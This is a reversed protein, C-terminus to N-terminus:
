IKMAELKRAIVKSIYILGKDTMHIGDKRFTSLTTDYLYCQYDAEQMVKLYKIANNGGGDILNDVTATTKKYKQEVLKVTLLNDSDKSIVEYKDYTGNLGIRIHRMFPGGFKGLDNSNYNTLFNADSVEIQVIGQLQPQVFPKLLKVNGMDWGYISAERIDLFNSPYELSLKKTLELFKNYNGGGKMEGSGGNGDYSSGFSGYNGNPPCMIIFKPTNLFNVMTRIDDIVIDTDTYNNRGVWIVQTREKNVGKLFEERIYPSTKGGYGKAYCKRGTIKQLYQAYNQATLSDGWTEIDGGVKASEVSEAVKARDAISSHKANDIMGVSQVLGYQQVYNDADEFTTTLHGDEGLDICYVGYIDADFYDEQGYKNMQCFIHQADPHSTINDKNNIFFESKWLGRTGHVLGAKISGLGVPIPDTYKPQISGYFNGGSSTSGETKSDKNIVMDFAVYYRHNYKFSYKNDLLYNFYAWGKGEGKDLKYKTSGDSNISKKLGGGLSRFRQEYTINTFLNSSHIDDLKNKLEDTFDNSSLMKGDEKKVFDDDNILVRKKDGKYVYNNIYLTHGIFNYDTFYFLWKSAYISKKTVRTALWIKNVGIEIDFTRGSIWEYEGDKSPYVFFTIKTKIPSYMEIYYNYIYGVVVDNSNSFLFGLTNGKHPIVTVKDSTRKEGFFSNEVNKKIEISDWGEIYGENYTTFGIQTNSSVKNISIEVEGKLDEIKSDTYEKLEASNDKLLTNRKTGKYRYANIYLTTGILSHAEFFAQWIAGKNTGENVVKFAIWIETIGNKITFSRPSIWEVDGDFNTYKQFYVHCEIPSYILINCNVIEGNKLGKYLNFGLTNGTHSIVEVKSAIRTDGFVNTIEKTVNISNWGELPADEYAVLGESFENSLTALKTDLNGSGDSMGVASSSTVPYEKNGSEDAFQIIKTAM